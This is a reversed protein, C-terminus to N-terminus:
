VKRFAYVLEDLYKGNKFITREFKAELKFGTKELVKRSSINTGFPRAFIRDIEFTKFGYDVIQKVAKTMIGKGWYIEALWYGLEMNKIHIDTQSHLGIAGSAEGNIEIAFIRTPSDKLTMQIFSEGNEFEYPNPFQNTLNEAIKTNNAHKVLSNIDDFDWPRLRFDM